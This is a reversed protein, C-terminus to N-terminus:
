ASLLDKYAKEYRVTYASGRFKTLLEQIISSLRNNELETKISKSFNYSFTGEVNMEDEKFEELDGATFRMTCFIIHYGYDTGVLVFSGPGAEVAERAGEAFEKVFTESKNLAPAPKSVYGLYSTFMGPDTNYAFILDKFMNTADLIDLKSKYIGTQLAPKTANLLELKSIYDMFNLGDGPTFNWYANKEKFDFTYKGKKCEKPKEEGVRDHDHNPEDETCEWKIIIKGDYPLKSYNKYDVFLTDKFLGTIGTDKDEEFNYGLEHSIWTERLDKAKIKSLLIDRAKEYADKGGIKDKNLDEAKLETIRQSQAADFGILLNLVLGYGDKPNSLAFSSDSLQELKTDYSSLDFQYGTEEERQILNYQALVLDILDQDTYEVKSLFKQYAAILKSELQSKYQEAMFYGYISKNKKITDKMKIFAEKRVKIDDSGSFGSGDKDIEKFDKEADAIKLAEDDKEILPTPVARQEPLTEPTIDEADEGWEEKVIKDFNELESNIADNLAKRASVIDSVPLKKEILEIDKLIKEFDKKFVLYEDKGANNFATITVGIDGGAGGTVSKYGTDAASSNFASGAVASNFGAAVWDADDMKNNGKEDGYLALQTIIKRNILNNLAMEFIQAVSAQQYYQSYYQSFLQVMDKKYIYDTNNKDSTINVTAVVQKMDRDNNLKICGSLAAAILIISLILALIRKM